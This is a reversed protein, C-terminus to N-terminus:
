KQSDGDEYGFDWNDPHGDGTPSPYANDDPRFDCFFSDLSRRFEDHSECMSQYIVFYMGNNMTVIAFPESAGFETHMRKIKM